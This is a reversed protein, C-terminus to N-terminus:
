WQLAKRAETTLQYCKRKCYLDAIQMLEDVSYDDFYYRNTEPIRSDLGPNCSLLGKMPAPYGALLLMWDRNSEDALATLLTELVNIGPDKPDEPKYLSYAEDIFLIGGQARKMAALTKEDESGYFQGLLTSREEYVVHGKSLLGMDKLIKGLLRAVTTKGTGPNGIFAAHLSHQQTPLGKRNREQELRMLNCYNNIKQKVSALGIMREVGAITERHKRVQPDKEQM